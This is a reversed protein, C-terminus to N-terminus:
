CAIHKFLWLIKNQNKQSNQVLGFCVWTLVLSSMRRVSLIIRDFRFNNLIEVSWRGVGIM